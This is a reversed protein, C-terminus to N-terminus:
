PLENSRDEFFLSVVGRHCLIFRFPVEFMDKSSVCVSGTTSKDVAQRDTPKQVVDRGGVVTELCCKWETDVHKGVLVLLRGSGRM